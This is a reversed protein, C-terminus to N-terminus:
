MSSMYSWLFILSYTAEFAFPSIVHLGPSLGPISNVRVASACDKGQLMWHYFTVDNTLLLAFIYAM